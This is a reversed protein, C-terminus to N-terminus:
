KAELFEFSVIPRIAYLKPNAAIENAWVRIAVSAKFSTTRCRVWRKGERKYLSYLAPVEIVPKGIPHIRIVNGTRTYNLKDM